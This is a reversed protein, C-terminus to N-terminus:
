FYPYYSDFEYGTYPDTMNTFPQQLSLASVNSPLVCKQTIPDWTTGIDCCESGICGTISLEGLLNGSNANTQQQRIIADQGIKSIPAAQNIINYDINDRSSLDTYMKYLYILGVVIIIITLLSILTSPVYKSLYKLIFFAIIIIIVLLMMKLYQNIRNSYNQNLAILRKQNNEAIEISNQKNTLRTLESGIVGSIDSVANAIGDFVAGDQFETVTM